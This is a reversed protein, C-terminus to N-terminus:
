RPSVGGGWGGSRRRRASQDTEGIYIVMTGTRVVRVKRPRLAKDQLLDSPEHQLSEDDDQIRSQQLYRVEMDIHMVRACRNVAKASIM